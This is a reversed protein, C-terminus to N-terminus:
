THISDQIRHETAQIQHIGTDQTRYRTSGRIRQISYRTSGQIRYGIDLVGRYGTDTLVHCSIWIQSNGVTLINTIKQTFLFVLNPTTLNTQKESKKCFNSIKDLHRKQPPPLPPPPIRLNTINIALIWTDIQTDIFKDKQKDMQRGM